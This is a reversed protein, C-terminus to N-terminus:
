QWYDYFRLWSWNFPRKLAKSQFATVFLSSKILILMFLPLPTETSAAQKRLFLPPGQTQFLINEGSWITRPWACFTRRAGYRGEDM